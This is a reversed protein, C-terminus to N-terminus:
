GSGRPWDRAYHIVRLIQVSGGSVRYALLYPVDTLLLERTGPVRGPRGRDPMLSLSQGASWILGAVRKAASPDDRSIYEVCEEVDRLALRLWLVPGEAPM